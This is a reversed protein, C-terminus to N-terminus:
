CIGVVSKLLIVPDYISHFCFMSVEIRHSTIFRLNVWGSGVFFFRWPSLYPILIRHSRAFLFLIGPWIDGRAICLVIGDWGM